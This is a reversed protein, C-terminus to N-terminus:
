VVMMLLMTSMAGGMGIHAALAADPAAGLKRRRGQGAREGTRTRDWVSITLSVLFVIVTDPMSLLWRGWDRGRGGERSAAAGGKGTGRVRAWVSAGISLLFYVALAAAAFRWVPTSGVAGGDDTAATSMGPMDMGPMSGMGGMHSMDAENGMNEMGPMHAMSSGGLALVPGSSTSTMALTMIVMGASGVILHVWHRGHKWGCERTHKVATAIGGLGLLAFVAAWWMGYNAYWAVTAPMAMAAMCLGMLLEGMAAFRTEGNTTAM